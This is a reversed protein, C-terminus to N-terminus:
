DDQIEKMMADFLPSEELEQLIAIQEHLLGRPDSYASMMFIWLSRVVVFADRAHLKGISDNVASLLKALLEASEPSAVKLFPHERM